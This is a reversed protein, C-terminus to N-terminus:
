IVSYELLYQDKAWYETLRHGLYYISSDFVIRVPISYSGSKLVDHHPLLQIPGDYWAIEEDKLRMAVDRQIM